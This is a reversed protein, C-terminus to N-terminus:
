STWLRHGASRCKAVLTLCSRRNSASFNIVGTVKELRWAAHRSIGVCCGKSYKRAWEISFDQDCM